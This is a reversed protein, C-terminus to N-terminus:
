DDDVIAIYDAFSKCMSYIGMLLSGGSFICSILSVPVGLITDFTLLFPYNNCLFVISLILQPLAEFLHGLYIYVPIEEIESRNEKSFTKGDEYKLPELASKCGIALGALPAILYFILCLILYEMLFLLPHCFLVIYSGGGETNIDIKCKKLIMKTFSLEDPFADHSSRIGTVILFLTLLLPPLFLIVCSAQFYGHSVTEPYNTSPDTNNIVWRHYAGNEEFALERYIVAQRLDLGIDVILWLAKLLPGFRILSPNYTIMILIMIILVECAM